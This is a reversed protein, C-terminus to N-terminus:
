FVLLRLASAGRRGVGAWCFLQLPKAVVTVAPGLTDVMVDCGDADHSGVRCVDSHISQDPILKKYGSYLFPM